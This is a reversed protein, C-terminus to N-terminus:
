GDIGIKEDISFISPNSVNNIFDSERIWGKFTYRLHENVKGTQPDIIDNNDLKCYLLPFGGHDRITEGYTYDIPEEIQNGNDDYFTISYYRTNESFEPALRL